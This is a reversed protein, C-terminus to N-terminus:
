VVPATRIPTSRLVTRYGIVVLALVLAAIVVRLLSGGATAPGLTVEDLFAVDASMGAQVLIVPGVTLPLALTGWWGGVRYYVLGCLLGCLQGAAAAVFYEGLLLGVQSTDRVFTLDDVFVHPWGALHFVWRELQILGVVTLAYFASMTLAVLVTVTGLVRRTLGMQVHVPLHAIGLIIALSFPFWIVGQRAFGIVSNTVTGIRDIAVIGVVGAAALVILAGVGSRLNVRLLWRYSGWLPNPEPAVPTPVATDTM